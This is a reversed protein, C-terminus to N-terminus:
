GFRIAPESERFGIASESERFGIASSKSRIQDLFNVVCSLQRGMPLLGQADDTFFGRLRQAPRRLLPDSIVTKALVRPNLALKRRNPNGSKSTQAIGHHTM